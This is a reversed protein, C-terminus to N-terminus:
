NTRIHKLMPILQGAALAAAASIATDALVTSMFWVLLLEWIGITLGNTLVFNFVVYYYLLGCVYYVAEGALCSIGLIILSKRFSMKKTNEQVSAEASAEANVAGPVSAGSAFARNNHLMVARHGRGNNKLFREYLRGATYAAAAFGIIFGFTPKAMYYLGGGHAFVPLGILGLLIYSIVSVAGSRGGLILGALLAFFLQLSVTVEFAGLPIMVKIYAGVVMLATFMACCILEYVGPRGSGCMRGQSQACAAATRGNNDTVAGVCTGNHDNNGTQEPMKIEAKPM